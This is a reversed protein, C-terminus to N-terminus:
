PGRRGGLSQECRDRTRRRLSPAGSSPATDARQPNGIPRACRPRRGIGHRDPSRWRAYSGSHPAIRGYGSIGGTPCIPAQPRLTATADVRRASPVAKRATSRSPARSRPSHRATSRHHSRRPPHPKANAVWSAPASSKRQPSPAPLRSATRPRSAVATSKGGATSKGDTSKGDATSKGDTAPKGSTAGAKAPRAGPAAGTTKLTGKVATKGTAGNRGARGAPTAGAMAPPPYKHLVWYQQGLSFLNQTVWYIIVGIPFYWGSLLLSIPIGYLMLKQIM